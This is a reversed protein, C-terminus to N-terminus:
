RAALNHLEAIWNDLTFGPLRGVFRDLDLDVWIKKAAVEDPLVGDVVPHAQIYRDVAWHLRLWGIPDNASNIREDGVADAAALVAPIVVPSCVDQGSTLSTVQDAAVALERWQDVTLTVTVTVTVTLPVEGPPTAAVPVATTFGTRM